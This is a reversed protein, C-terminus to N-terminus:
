HMAAQLLRYASALHVLAVHRTFGAWLRGEYDEFGLGRAEHRYYDTTTTAAHSLRQLADDDVGRANAALFACVQRGDGLGRQLLLRAPTGDALEADLAAMERVRPTGQRDRWALRTWAGRPVSAAVTALRAGPTGRDASVGAPLAGGAPLTLVWPVRAGAPACAPLADVLGPGVVVPSGEEEASAALLSAVISAESAHQVDAPIRAADRREGPEAWEAPLFLRTASPWDFVSDAHHVVIVRQCTVVGGRPGRCQRSAGVSHSGTKPISIADVVRVPSSASASARLLATRRRELADVDWSTRTLFEQLRQSSTGPVVRAIETATKTAAGSLLGAVYASLAARSESRRFLDHYPELFHGLSPPIAGFHTSM